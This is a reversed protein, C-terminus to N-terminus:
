FDVSTQVKSTGSPSGRTAPLECCSSCTNMLTKNFARCARGSRVLTTGWATGGKAASLVLIKGEVTALQPTAAAAVLAGPVAVVKAGAVEAVGDFDVDGVLKGDDARNTGVDIVVAGPRVMDATVLGIRGAAAVVVIGRDDAEDVADEADSVQSLRFAMRGLAVRFPMMSAM